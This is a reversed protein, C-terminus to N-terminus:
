YRREMSSFFRCWVPSPEAVISPNLPGRCAILNEFLVGVAHTNFESRVTLSTSRVSLVIVAEEVEVVYALTM